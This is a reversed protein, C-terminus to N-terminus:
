MDGMRSFVATKWVPLESKRQMERKKLLHAHQRPFVREVSEAKERPESASATAGELVIEGPEIPSKAKEGGHLAFGDLADLNGNLTLTPSPPSNMLSALPSLSTTPSRLEGLASNCAVTDVKMASGVAESYEAEQADEDHDVVVYSVRLKSPFVPPAGRQRRRQQYRLEPNYYHYHNPPYSATPDQYKVHHWLRRAVTRRLRVSTERKM